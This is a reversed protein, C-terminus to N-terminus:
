KTRIEIGADKNFLIISTSESNENFSGSFLTKEYDTIIRLQQRAYHSINGNTIEGQLTYSLTIPLSLQIPTRDNAVSLEKLRNGVSEIILYGNSIEIQGQQYIDDITAFCFDGNLKLQKISEIHFRSTNGKIEAVDANVLHLQSYQGSFIGQVVKQFHINCNDLSLNCVKAHNLRGKIFSLNGRITDVSATTAQTLNGYSLNGDFLATSTNINVDGFQNELIIQKFHHPVLVEYNIEFPFGSYFEHDFSTRFYINGDVVADKVDIQNLVEEASQPNKTNVVITVTVFLSDSKTPNFVINGHQNHIEIGDFRDSSFIWEKKDIHSDRYHSQALISETILTNLILIIYLLFGKM